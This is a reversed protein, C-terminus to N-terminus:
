LPLSRYGDWRKAVHAVLPLNTYKNILTTNVYLNGINNAPNKAAKIVVITTLIM